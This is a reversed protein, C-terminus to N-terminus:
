AARKNLARFDSLEAVEYPRWNKRQWWAALLNGLSAHSERQVYPDAVAQHDVHIEAVRFGRTSVLSGLFRHMGPALDLGAVAERRAAWFLCDPDRVELGLLMRRPLQLATMALKRGRSCHRRGFVLDARALREILWPIQEPLYQGSAEVAVLLEGRSASIGASLAASVGSPRDLRLCRLEPTGRRLQEVTRGCALESGDDISLIEFPRDRRNLLRALPPLLRALQEPSDRHPILLSLQIMPVDM